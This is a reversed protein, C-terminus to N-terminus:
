RQAQQACSARARERKRVSKIARRGDAGSHGACADGGVVVTAELEGVVPVARSVASTRGEARQCPESEIVGQCDQEGEQEDEEDAAGEGSRIECTPRAADLRAAGQGNADRGIRTQSM